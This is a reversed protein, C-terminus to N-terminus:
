LCSTHLAAYHPALPDIWHLFRRRFWSRMMRMIVMIVMVVHHAVLRHPRGRCSRLVLMVLYVVMLVTHLVYFLARRTSLVGHVIMPLCGLGCRHIMRDVTSFYLVLMVSLAVRPVHIM